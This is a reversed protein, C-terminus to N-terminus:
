CYTSTHVLVTAIKKERGPPLGELHGGLLLVRRCPPWPRSSYRFVGYRRPWTAIIQVQITSGSMNRNSPCFTVNGSQPDSRSEIMMVIRNSLLEVHQVIGTKINFTRDKCIGSKATASYSACYVDHGCAYQSSFLIWLALLHYVSYMRSMVHFEPRGHCM